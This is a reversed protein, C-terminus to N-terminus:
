DCKIGNIKALIQFKKVTPERIFCKLRMLFHSELEDGKANERVERLDICVSVFPMELRANEFLLLADEDGM